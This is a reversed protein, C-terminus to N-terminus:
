CNYMTFKFLTDVALDVVDDLSRGRRYKQVKGATQGRTTLCVFADFLVTINRQSGVPLSVPVSTFHLVCTTKNKNKKSGFIIIKKKKEGLYSKTQSTKRSM